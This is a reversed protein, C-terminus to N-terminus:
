DFRQPCSVYNVLPRAATSEFDIGANSWSWTKCPNRWGIVIHLLSLLVNKPSMALKPELIGLLRSFVEKTQVATLSAREWVEQGKTKM